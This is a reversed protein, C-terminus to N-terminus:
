KKPKKFSIVVGFFSDFNTWFTLYFKHVCYFIHQIFKNCAINNNKKTALIYNTSMDMYISINM